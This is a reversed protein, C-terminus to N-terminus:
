EERDDGIIGRKVFRWANRLLCGLWYVNLGQLAVLLVFIVGQSVACKFQGAEWDPAMSFAGVVRFDKLVAFYLIRINVYHRLYIWAAVCVAYSPLQLPHSLYNLSKSIALWFDSADHTVFVLTGLVTFHFRYSLGVLAVTVCHHVVLEKFDKRRTELGLAMVLVQQAWFAAQLLYYAKTLASPHAKFPYSAYLIHPDSFHLSQSQSSPSSPHTYYTSYVWAGVPATIGTYVAVYMQEAFRGVTKDDNNNIGLVRGLPRLVEGMLFERVCFLVLVYFAVFLADRPGKGYGDNDDRYSLFILPRVVGPKM